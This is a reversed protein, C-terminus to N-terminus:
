KEPRLAHGESVELLIVAQEAEGNAGSKPIEGLFKVSGTHSALEGGEPGLQGVVPAPDPRDPSEKWWEGEVLLISGKENRIVSYPQDTKLQVEQNGYPRIRTRWTPKARTGPEPFAWFCIQEAWPLAGLLSLSLPKYNDDVNVPFRNRQVAQSQAICASFSGMRYDDVLARAEAYAAIAMRSVQDQAGSDDANAQFHYNWERSTQEVLKEAIQRIALPQKEVLWRHNGNAYASLRSAFRQLDRMLETRAAIVTEYSPNPRLRVVDQIRFTEREFDSVYPTGDADSMELYRAEVRAAIAAWSKPEFIDGQRVCKCIAELLGAYAPWPDGDMKHVRDIIDSNSTLHELPRFNDSHILAAVLLAIMGIAGVNELHPQVMRLMTWPNRDWQLYGDEYLTGAHAPEMTHLDPYQQGPGALQFQTLGMQRLAAYDKEDLPLLAGSEFTSPTRIEFLKRPFLFNYTSDDHDHGEMAFTIDAFTAASVAVGNAVPTGSGPPNAWLIKFQGDPTESPFIGEDTSVSKFGIAFCGPLEKQTQKGHFAAMKRVKVTAERILDASAWPGALGLQESLRAVREEDPMHLEQGDLAVKIARQQRRAVSEPTLRDFAQGDKISNAIKEMVQRGVEPQHTVLQEAGTHIMLNPAMQRGEVELVETGPNFAWLNMKGATVSATVETALSDRAVLMDIGQPLPADEDIVCMGKLLGRNTTIWSQLRATDKKMTTGFAACLQQATAAHCQISGSNTKGGLKDDVLLFTLPGNPLNLKGLGTALDVTSEVPHFIAADGGTGMARLRKLVKGLNAGATVSIGMAEFVNKCDQNCLAKAAKQQALYQVIRGAGNYAIAVTDLGLQEAMTKMQRTLQEISTTMQKVNWSGIAAPSDPVYHEVAKFYATHTQASYFRSQDMGAVMTLGPTCLATLREPTKIARLMLAAENALRGLKRNNALETLQQRALYGPPLTAEPLSPDPISANLVPEITLTNM